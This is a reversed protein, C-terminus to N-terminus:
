RTIDGFPTHIIEHVQQTSNDSGSKQAALYRLFFAWWTTTETIQETGGYTMLAQENDFASRAAVGTTSPVPRWSPSM